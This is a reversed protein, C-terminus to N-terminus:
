KSWIKKALAMNRQFLPLIEMLTQGRFNERGEEPVPIGFHRYTEGESKEHLAVSDVIVGDFDFIIAKINALSM